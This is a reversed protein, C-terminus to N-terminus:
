RLVIPRRCLYIVDDKLVVIQELKKMTARATQRCSKSFAPTKMTHQNLLPLKFELFALLEDLGTEDFVLTNAYDRREVSGFWPSLQEPGNEDNFPRSISRLSIDPCLVGMLRVLDRSAEEAHTLIIFLGGPKLVRAIEPIIGPFFYLSYTATVLDFSRDPLALKNTITQRVFEGRRGAESVQSLFPTRNTPCVDVGVIRADPSVRRAVVETMFGFGCGLDLVARVPSLDLGALAVDRVRARNTSREQIIDKVRRHNETRLYPSGSSDVISM